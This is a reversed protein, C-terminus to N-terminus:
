FAWQLRAGLEYTNGDQPYDYNAIQARFADGTFMYAGVLDLNLKDVINQTIYLDIEHGLSSSASWNGSEINYRGPVKQSTGFYWYSLSLKTAPLVQWAGGATITWINTPNPYGRWYGGNPAFNDLIGGGMIESFYKSTTLPYTFQNVDMQGAVALQKTVYLDAPTIVGDNFNLKQGTTYFGGLNATWPGCFYSVGADVMWGTYNATFSASNASTPEENVKSLFLKASGFNKVFNLYASLYDLKYGLQIALDFLNNNQATAYYGLINGWPSWVYSGSSNAAGSPSFPVNIHLPDDFAAAVTPFVSAPVNHADQWVGVLGATFPGEKYIVAAALDDVNDTEQTTSFNQGAAYGVIVTFPKLDAVLLAASFDSDLVWSDVLAIGQVGVQAALPTNPIKFAAYVNKMGLNNVDAGANGGPCTAGKETQGQSDASLYQATSVAYASSLVGASLVTSPLLGPTWVGAAPM